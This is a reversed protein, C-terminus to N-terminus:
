IKHTNCKFISEISSSPLLQPRMTKPMLIGIKNSLFLSSLFILGQCLLAKNCIYCFLDRLKTAQSKLESTLLERNSDTRLHARQLLRRALTQIDRFHTSTTFLYLFLGGKGQQQQGTIQSHEHFFIRIFFIYLSILVFLVWFTSVLILFAM